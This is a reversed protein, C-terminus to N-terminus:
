LRQTKLWENFESEYKELWGPFEADRRKAYRVRIDDPSECPLMPNRIISEIAKQCDEREEDALPYEPHLNM